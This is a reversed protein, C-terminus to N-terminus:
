LVTEKFIQNCMKFSSPVTEGPLHSLPQVSQLLMNVLSSLMYALDTIKIPENIICTYFPIGGWVHVHAM